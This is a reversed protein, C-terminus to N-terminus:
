LKALKSYKAPKKTAFAEFSKALDESQLMAM